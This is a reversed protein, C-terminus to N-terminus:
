YCIAVIAVIALPLTLGSILSCLDLYVFITLLKKNMLKFM